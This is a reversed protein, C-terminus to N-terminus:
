RRGADAGQSPSRLERQRQRWLPAATNNVASAEAGFVQHPVASRKAGAPPRWGEAGKPQSLSGTM